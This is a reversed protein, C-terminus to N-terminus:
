PYQGVRRSQGARDWSVGQQAHEADTRVPVTTGWTVSSSHLCFILSIVCCTSNELPMNRVSKAYAM